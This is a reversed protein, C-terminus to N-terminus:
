YGRWSSGYIGPINAPSGYRSKIYRIAAVANDVPNFINGYGPLMYAKFTSPLTQLLGTAHERGVPTKNVARPNGSSEKSVLWQMYPMWSSPSGTLQLAKQLAQNITGTYKTTSGSPSSQKKQKQKESEPRFYEYLRSSWANPDNLPNNIVEPVYLPDNPLVGGGQIDQPYFYSPLVQKFYLAM